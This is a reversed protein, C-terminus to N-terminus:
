ALGPLLLPLDPGTGAMVGIPEVADSGPPLWHAVGFDSVAGDGDAMESVDGHAEAAFQM